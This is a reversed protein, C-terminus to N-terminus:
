YGRGQSESRDLVLAAVCTAIETFRAPLRSLCMVTIGSLASTQSAARPAPYVRLFWRWVVRSRIRTCMWTYSILAASSGAIPLWSVTSSCVRSTYPSL